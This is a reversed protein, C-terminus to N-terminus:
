PRRAWELAEDIADEITAAPAAANQEKARTAELELVITPEAVGFVAPRALNTSAPRKQRVLINM